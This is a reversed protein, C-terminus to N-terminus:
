FVDRFLWRGLDLAPLCCGSPSRSSLRFGSPRGAAAAGQVAGGLVVAPARVCPVGRRSHPPKVPARMRRGGCGCREGALRRRVPSASIASLVPRAMQAARPICSRAPGASGRLTARQVPAPCPHSLATMESCTQWACSRCNEPLHPRSVHGSTVRSMRTRLTPSRLAAWVMRAIEPVQVAGQPPRAHSCGGSMSFASWLPAGSLRRM